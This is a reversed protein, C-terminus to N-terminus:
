RARQETELLDARPLVLALPHPRGHGLRGRSVGELDLSQQGAGADGGLEADLEVGDRAVLSAVGVERLVEGLRHPLDAAGTEPVALLHTRPPVTPGARLTLGSCPADYRCAGCVGGAAAGRGGGAPSPPRIRGRDHPDVGAG